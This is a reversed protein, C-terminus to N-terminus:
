KKEEIDSFKTVIFEIWSFQSHSKTKIYGCDLNSILSNMLVEDRIHQTISFVLQVGRGLKNNTKYTNVYFCGEASTFGVLWNPYVPAQNLNIPKIAPIINPFANKLANSLDNNLSAKLSVIKM